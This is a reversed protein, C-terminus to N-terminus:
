KIKDLVEKLVVAQNHIEDKAGFLLIIKDHKRELSKIYKLRELNDSSALEKEYKKRFENWKSEDHSFWRRLANSPAIEKEWIDASVKEKTLGRPWVRDILIRFGKGKSRYVREIVIM